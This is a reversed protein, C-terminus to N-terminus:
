GRGGSLLRLRVFLRLPTWLMGLLNSPRIARSTIGDYRASRYPVAVWRHGRELLQVLVEAQYAFSSTEMRVSRVLDTRHLVPGNYYGVGFGFLANVLGTFARSLLRRLLPRRSQDLLVPIVIDAEGLHGLIEGINEATEADDGTVWMVYETTVLELGRRYAGGLGLNRPNHVARVRPNGAALREVVAETGDRSADDVLLIQHDPFRGGAARTITEVTAAVREGVRYATVLFTIGPAPSGSAM